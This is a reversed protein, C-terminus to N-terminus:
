SAQKNTIESDTSVLDPIPNLFDRLRTTPNTVLAPRLTERQNGPVLERAQPLCNALRPRSVANTGLHFYSHTPRDSDPTTPTRHEDPIHLGPLDRKVDIQVVRDVNPDDVLPRAREDCTLCV